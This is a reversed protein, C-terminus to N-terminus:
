RGRASGGRKKGTPTATGPKLKGERQLAATSIAYTSSKSLNPNSKAIAKRRDELVKPM